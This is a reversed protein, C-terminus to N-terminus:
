RAVYVCKMVYETLKRETSCLNKVKRFAEPIGDVRDFGFHQFLIDVGQMLECRGVIMIDSEQMKKSLQSVIKVHDDSHMCYWGNAFEFIRKVDKRPESLNQLDERIDGSHINLGDMVTDSLKYPEIDYAAQFHVYSKSPEGDLFFNSKDKVPSLYNQLKFGLHAEFEDFDFKCAGILGKKARNVIDNDIDILEVNPFLERYKDEGVSNIMALKRSVFMSLDSCGWVKREVEKANQAEELLFHGMENPLTENYRIFFDCNAVNEGNRYLRTNTRRHTTGFSIQSSTNINYPNVKLM